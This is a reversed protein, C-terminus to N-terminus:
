TVGDCSALFFYEEDTLKQAYEYGKIYYAFPVLRWGRLAINDNLIYRMDTYVEEAPRVEKAKAPPEGNM